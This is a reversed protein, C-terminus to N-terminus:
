KSTTKLSRQKARFSLQAGRALKSKLEGGTIAATFSENPGLCLFFTVRWRDSLYPLPRQEFGGGERWRGWGWSRIHTSETSSLSKKQQQKAVCLNVGVLFFAPPSMMEDSQTKTHPTCFPGPTMMAFALLPPDSHLFPRSIIKGLCIIPNEIEGTFIFSM